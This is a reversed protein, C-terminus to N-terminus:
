EVLIGGAYVDGPCDRDNELKGSIGELLVQCDNLDDSAALEERESDILAGDDPYVLVLFRPLNNRGICLSRYVSKYYGMAFMGIIYIAVLTSKDDDSCLHLSAGPKSLTRQVGAPMTVFRTTPPETERPYNTVLIAKSGKARIESATECLWTLSLAKNWWLDYEPHSKSLRDVIECEIGTTNSIILVRGPAYKAIDALIYEQIAENSKLFLM